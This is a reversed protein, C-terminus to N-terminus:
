NKNSYKKKVVYKIKLVIKSKFFFETVKYLLNVDYM